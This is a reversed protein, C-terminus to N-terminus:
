ISSFRSVFCCVSGSKCFLTVLIAFITVSKLLSEFVRLVSVDSLDFGCLLPRLEFSSRGKNIVQRQILNDARLSLVPLAHQQVPVAPFVSMLM